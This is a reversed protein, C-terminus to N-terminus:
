GLSGHAIFAVQYGCRARELEKLKGRLEGFDSGIEDVVLEGAASAKTHEVNDVVDPALVQGCDRCSQRRCPRKTASSAFVYM